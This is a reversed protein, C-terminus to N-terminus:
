FPIDDDTTATQSAGNTAPRIRLGGVIKGGFDVMPDNYVNVTKGKVGESTTEGTAAKLRNKNTINLLMPKYGEEAFFMAIKEEEGHEGDVKVRKFGSITLNKGAEGVDEKKLYESKSKVMEDLNMNANRDLNDLWEHYGPDARLEQDELFRRHEIDNAYALEQLDDM